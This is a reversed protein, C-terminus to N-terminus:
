FFFLSFLVLFTFTFVYGCLFIIYLIFGCGLLSYFINTMRLLSGIIVKMVDVFFVTIRIHTRIERALYIFAFCSSFCGKFSEHITIRSLNRVLCSVVNCVVVVAVNTSCIDAYVLLSTALLRVRGM